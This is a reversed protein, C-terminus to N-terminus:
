TSPRPPSRTATSPTATPFLWRARVRAPRPARARARRPPSAHLRLRAPRDALLQRGVAHHGLPPRLLGRLQEVARQHVVRARDGPVARRHRQVHADARRHRGDDRDRHQLRQQEAVQPLRLQRQRPQRRPIRRGLRSIELGADHVARDARDGLREQRDFLQRVLTALGGRTGHDAVPHQAHHRRHDALQHVRDDQRRPLGPQHGAGGRQAGANYDDSGNESAWLPKGTSVANGSSPCNSQSGRYGCVYHSGFVSVARNFTADRLANDAAGWGWDDSAVIKVAGYGHSDLASRLNEYWTVNFGKENWGGLYDVTLGHSAACGLWDLLYNISDTSWFNGGGIWGPAGWALGYLKVGPNRTRAQEALWWEYGRTCNVVGRTHEHSPEAGSTSNTDGGIEVKLIQVAAGYGPKFLYDLIQGRQPEPYDILLRSNGGGGSIAGVGDFVRGGSTGNITIATAAQAPAAPVVIAAAVALVVGALAAAGGRGRTRLETVSRRVVGGRRSRSM